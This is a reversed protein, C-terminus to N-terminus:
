YDTEIIVNTWRNKVALEIKTVMAKAEVVEFSDVIIRKGIGDLMEGSSNRGLVGIDACATSADFVGDCNVKVWSELPKEWVDVYTTSKGIRDFNNNSCLIRQVYFLENMLCNVRQIIRELDLKEGGITVECRAKWIHLCTFVIRVKVEERMCPM